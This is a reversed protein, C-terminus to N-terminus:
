TLDSVQTHNREAETREAEEIEKGQIWDKREEEM